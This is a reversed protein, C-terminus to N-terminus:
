RGNRYPPPVGRLGADRRDLSPYLPGTDLILAV